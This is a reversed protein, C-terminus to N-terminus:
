DTLSDEAESWDDAHSGHGKGKAEWRYYAALRVQEEPIEPKQVTEGKKSGKAPTKTKGEKETTSKAM